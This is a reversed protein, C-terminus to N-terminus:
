GLARRVLGQFHAVLRESEPLLRGDEVIGSGVGRQVSEVLERDEAGVQADFAILEAADDDPVGAAFFYDFYGRTRESGDPWATGVSLNPPGPFVNLRTAPWVFHFHGEGEGNRAPGLQSSTWDGAELRYAAPDVDVVASFGPHAVPCHYCELYNEVVVKWNARVDYEVRSHFRLEPLDAGLRAPVDGLVEALPAEPDPSVFVLPGWEAVSAPVLSLESRDFADQEGSRPASRLSGDLAYTWAHYRCQLTRRRGSGTADEHGRHRCVNVFGRLADDEGRVVVLPVDGALATVFDGPQAVEGAHGAYHWSCRFIRERERRLVDPDSYWSWPLTRTAAM